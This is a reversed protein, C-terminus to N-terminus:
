PDNSQLWKQEASLELALRTRTQKVIQLHYISQMAPSMTLHFDMSDMLRDVEQGLQVRVSREEKALQNLTTENNLASASMKSLEKPLRLKLWHRQRREIVKLKTLRIRLNKILERQDGNLHGNQRARQIRHELEVFLPQQDAKQNADAVAKTLQQLQQQSQVLEHELAQLREDIRPVSLDASELLWKSQRTAQEVVTGQKMANRDQELHKALHGYLAQSREFQGAQSLLDARWLESRLM